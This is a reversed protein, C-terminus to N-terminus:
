MALLLEKTEVYRTLRKLAYGFYDFDIECLKAQALGWCGWFLNSALTFKNVKLYLEEVEEQTPHDDAANNNFRKASSQANLWGNQLPPLSSNTTSNTIEKNHLQEEEHISPNIDTPEVGVQPGDHQEGEQKEKKGLLQQQQQDESEDPVVQRQSNMASLLEAQLESELEREIEAEIETMVTRTERRKIQQQQESERQQSLRIDQQQKKKERKEHLLRDREGSINGFVQLYKHLFQLQRPKDPYQEWRLQYGTHECFHNALDFERYNYCAYENDILLISNTDENFIINGPNVDNHCFTILPSLRLLEQELFTIEEELNLGLKLYSRVQEKDKVHDFSNPLLAVWKKMSAFLSPTKSLQPISVAAHMTAMYAAIADRMMPDFLDIVTLSRGDVFGYVCGNEFAGYFRPGMKYSHLAQFIVVESERDFMESATGAEIRLLVKQVKKGINVKVRFLINTLGGEMRKLDIQCDSVNRWHPVLTKLIERLQKHITEQDKTIDVFIGLKHYPAAPGLLNHSREDLTEYLLKTRKPKTLGSAKFQEPQFGELSHYM